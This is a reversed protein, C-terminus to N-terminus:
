LGKQAKAFVEGNAFTVTITKEGDTWSLIKGSGALSGVAGAAGAQQTGKGLIREVEEQSMGNAIKDYNDKSVKSGCGAVMSLAFAGLVVLVFVRTKM